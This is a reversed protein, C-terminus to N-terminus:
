GQSLAGHHHAQYPSPLLYCSEEVKHDLAFNGDSTWPPISKGNVSPPSVDTKSSHWQPLSPPSSWLGLPLVSLYAEGGQPGERGLNQMAEQHQWQLKSAQAANAAKAKRIGTAWIVEVKSTSALCVAEAKRISTGYSAEADRIAKSTNIKNQHHSVETELIVWQHCTDITARASLLHDMADNMEEQLCLVDDSLNISNAPLPLPTPSTDM